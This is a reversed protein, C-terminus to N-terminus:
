SHEALPPPTNMPNFQDDAWKAPNAKIYTKITRHRETSLVLRDDYRDQWLSCGALKSVAGKWQQIVRQISPNKKDDLLHLLMHVHTPMIVSAEVLVSPYVSEIKDICSAAAEGIPSLKMVGNEVKGLAEIRQKTVITIFYAGNSRYDHEKLRNSKRSPWENDVLPM